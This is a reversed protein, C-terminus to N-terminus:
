QQAQQAVTNAHSSCDITPAYPVYYSWRFCAPPPLHPDTRVLSGCCCPSPPPPHCQHSHHYHHCFADVASPPAWAAPSHSHSLTLGPTYATVRLSAHGSHFALPHPPTRLAVYRPTRCPACAHKRAHPASLNHQQQAQRGLTSAKVTRRNRTKKQDSCRLGLLFEM